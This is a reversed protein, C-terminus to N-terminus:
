HYWIPRRTGPFGKKPPLDHLEPERKRTAPRQGTEVDDELEGLFGVRQAEIRQEHGIV